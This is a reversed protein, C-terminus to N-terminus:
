EEGDPREGLEITFDKEGMDGREITVIVKEGVELKEICDRLQEFDKIEVGNFIKIIDGDKIGSKKAAANDFLNGAQDRALAVKVGGDKPQEMKPDIMIGLFPNKRKKVVQGALLKPMHAVLREVPAAFGVGSNIGQAPRNTLKSAIGMLKGDLDVIAGGANGYNMRTSVQIADGKFRGIASVNGVTVIAQEAEGGRGVLIAFQGVKPAKNLQIPTLGKSSEVTLVQVDLNEDRGKITATVKDGSPLVVKVSKADRLNWISTVIVVEGEKEPNAIVVGSVAGPPRMFFRPDYGPSVGLMAREQATLTREARDEREVELAVVSKEAKASIKPLAQDLAALPDSDDALAAPAVLAAAATLTMLTELRM